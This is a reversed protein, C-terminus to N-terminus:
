RQLLKLQKKQSIVSQKTWYATFYKKALAAYGSRAKIIGRFCGENYKIMTFSTQQVLLLLAILSRLIYKKASVWARLWLPPM